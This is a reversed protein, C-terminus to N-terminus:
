ALKSLLSMVDSNDSQSGEMDSSPDYGDDDGDEDANPYSSDPSEPSDHHEEREYEKVEVDESFAVRKSPPESGESPRKELKAVNNQKPEKEANEENNNESATPEQEDAEYTPVDDDDDDEYKPLEDGLDDDMTPSPEEDDDTKKADEKEDNHLSDENEEKEMQQLEARTETLKALKDNIIQIKTEDTNSPEDVLKILSNLQKTIQSKLNQIDKINIVAIKGLKELM